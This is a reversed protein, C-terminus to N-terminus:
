MEGRRIAMEKGVDNGKDSWFVGDGDGKTVM